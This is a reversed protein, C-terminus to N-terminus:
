FISYQRIDSLRVLKQFGQCLDTHQLQHSSRYLVSRLTHTATDVPLDTYRREILFAVQMAVAYRKARGINQTQWENQNEESRSFLVNLLWERETHSLMTLTRRSAGWHRREAGVM